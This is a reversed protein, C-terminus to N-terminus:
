HAARQASDLANAKRTVRSKGVSAIVAKGSPACFAYANLEAPVSVGFNDGGVSWSNRSGFDDEYFTTGGGSIFTYGGSILGYGGPCNATAHSVDDAAVTV